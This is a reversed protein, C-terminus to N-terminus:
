NFKLVVYYISQPKDGPLPVYIRFYYKTKLLPSQFRPPFILLLLALGSINLWGAVISVKNSGWIAIKLVITM